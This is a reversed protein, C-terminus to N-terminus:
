RASHSTRTIQASVANWRTGTHVYVDTYRSLGSSGDRRTFLGTAQVIGVGAYIRVNVNQLKYHAVDPGEATKKLFQTKTLVSGDSEICVFDAALHEEYWPVDSSMYAKIYEDNLRELTARDSRDPEMRNEM